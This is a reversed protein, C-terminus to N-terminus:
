GEHNQTQTQLIQYHDLYTLFITSPQVHESSLFELLSPSSSYSTPALSPNVELHAPPPLPLFPRSHRPHPQWCVHLPGSAPM